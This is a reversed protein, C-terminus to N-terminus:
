IKDGEVIFNMMLPENISQPLADVDLCCGFSDCPDVLRSAFVIPDVM